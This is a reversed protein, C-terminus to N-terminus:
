EVLLLAAIGMYKYFFMLVDNGYLVSISRIRGVLSFESTMLPYAVFGSRM